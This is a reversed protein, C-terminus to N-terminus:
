ASGHERAEAELTALVRRIDESDYGRRALFAYLRRSRAGADLAGLTRLKKRALRELTEALDVGGAAGFSGPTVDDTLVVEIARDAVDRAVGRRALEQSLRRPAYGRGLMQSRAVQLAYDEDNLLGMAELREIARSVHEEPEKAARLRRRLEGISRSRAALLRLARDYTRLAAAEQAIRDVVRSDIDVGVSLALRTVDEILLVGVSEGEVQVAIRGTQKPVATLATITPM